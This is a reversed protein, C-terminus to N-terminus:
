AIKGLGDPEPNAKTVENDCTTDGASSKKKAGQASFEHAKQVKKTAKEDYSSLAGLSRGGESM